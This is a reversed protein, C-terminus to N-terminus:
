RLFLAFVVSFDTTKLDQKGVRSVSYVVKKM